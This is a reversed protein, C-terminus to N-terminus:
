ERVIENPRSGVTVSVLKLIMVGGKKSPIGESDNHIIM